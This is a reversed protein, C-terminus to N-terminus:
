DKKFFDDIKTQKVRQTRMRAAFDRWKRLCIIDAPTAEEQQCIYQLAGEIMKLGESHPMQNMNEEEESEEMFENGVVMTVIDDDTIEDAEDSKMWSTIDELQIDECGPVKTMISLLEHNEIENETENPMDSGDYPQLLKKWSRELTTSTIEEWGESVWRIVDLVDIKKLGTICNSNDDISSLLFGLLRRRYKRKLAELVGQDMPQCISTVNPPLFLTKIDGDRLEDVPPHSPANDLILIAKRPMKKILLHKEVAPVFENKFWEKFIKSNMWAKTQHTYWVPLSDSSKLKKFARPKKSKGIVTLRLKHNGTANSCALVTVREKSKKYGPATAEKKSALTKTPLIKYNLGTEDCNYLQEPFLEEKELISCLHTKFAPVADKDASLSEGSITLQRIGFRKKWRDLWGDSATFITDEGEITKSFHLAKEQLLPGSVPFGKGRLQEYWLFLAEEVELHKGKQMTKRVKIGSGSAQSACWKEIEARQKKWDGVTSKGVGLEFAIKKASEGSDLRKIAELKQEITVVIKKRKNSMILCAALVCIFIQWWFDRETQKFVQRLVSVFYYIFVGKLHVRQRQLREQELEYFKFKAQM